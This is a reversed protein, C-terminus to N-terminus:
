MTCAHLSVRACEPTYFIPALPQVGDYQPVPVVDAWELRQSFPTFDEDSM